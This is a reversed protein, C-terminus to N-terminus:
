IILTHSLGEGMRQCSQVRYKLNNERRQICGEIVSVPRCLDMMYKPAIVHLCKYVHISFKCQFRESVDPWHLEDHLIRTLGRDYKKTQALIRAAANMFCQLKETWKKPAGAMLCNCYDVLSSVFSHILMSAAESNVSRRVRRLQRLQFIYKGSAISVHKELCLDPTFTM